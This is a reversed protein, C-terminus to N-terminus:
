GQKRFWITNAGVHKHLQYHNDMLLRHKRNHKEANRPYEETVILRPQYRDFDLGLLVEYDMGEADILLISFDKPFRHEALLATLTEVQVMVYNESRREQFIENDDLCLTAWGGLEGDTGIYLRQQGQYDACAKNICTVNPHNQYNQVLEQFLAPVPEIALLRWGRQAFPWSNSLFQGNHAGVDVIYNPWNSGLLETIASTEGHQSTDDIQSPSMSEPSPLLPAKRLSFSQLIRLTSDKLFAKM